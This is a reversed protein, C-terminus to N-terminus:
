EISFTIHSGTVFRAEESCLFLVADAIDQPTANKRSKWKDSHDSFSLAQEVTDFHATHGPGPNVVNVTINHKREQLALHRTLLVRGAKGIAYEVPSHKDAAWQGAGIIGLNVIRGWKNERMIPLCAQICNFAGMVEAEIVERFQEPPIKTIDQPNWGGGANNVLIDIKGLEDVTQKVMAGVEDASKTDAKVLIVRRGLDRVAQEVGKSVEDAEADRRNTGYNLVIDAGNRALTLATSRGMGGGTSGTILAVRDELNM